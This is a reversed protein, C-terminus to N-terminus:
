RVSCLLNNIELNKGALQAKVKGAYVKEGGASVSVLKTLDISLLVGNGLVMLDKGDAITKLQVAYDQKEVPEGVRPNGARVTAVNARSVTVLDMNGALTNAPRCVIADGSSQAFGALSAATVSVFALTRLAKIM